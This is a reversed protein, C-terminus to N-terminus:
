ISNAAAQLRLRLIAPITFLPDALGIVPLQITEPLLMPLAFARGVVRQLRGMLGPEFRLAQNGRINDKPPLVPAHAVRFDRLYSHCGLFRSAVQHEAM